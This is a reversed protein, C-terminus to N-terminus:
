KSELADVARVLRRWTWLVFSELALAILLVVAAALWNPHDPLPDATFGGTGLLGVVIM